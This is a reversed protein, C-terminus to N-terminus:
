FRAGSAEPFEIRLSERLQEGQHYRHIEGSARFDWEKGDNSSTIRVARYFEPLDTAFVVESLPINGTGFDARWRSETADESPEPVVAAPLSDREPERSTYNLVDVGTVSFQRGPEFIRIRVYRAQLGQFPITQTGDIARAHFRSIPARADVIRWTHADDSLAVEAWVIFDPEPTLVRVQDYFPPNYGLDAILQTYQGAVFSNEVLKASHNETNFVGRDIFFEFPVEQGTDDILRLDSCGPECHSFVEWPLSIDAPMRQEAPAGQVPRSYRWSRWRSPLDTAFIAAGFFLALSLLALIRRKM